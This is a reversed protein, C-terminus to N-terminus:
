ALITGADANVLREMAREVADEGEVGGPNGRRREFTVIEFTRKLIVGPEKLYESHYTSM